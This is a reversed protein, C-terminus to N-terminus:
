IWYLFYWCGSIPEMCYVSTFTVHCVVELYHVIKVLKEPSDKDRGPLFTNFIMFIMVFFVIMCHDNIM